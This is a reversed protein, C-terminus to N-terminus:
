SELALFRTFETTSATDFGSTSRRVLLAPINNREAFELSERPAMVMLATSWADADITRDAIVSVAATGHNVPRGSGPDILHCYRDGQHLFFDTYDGSTAVAADGLRLTRLIGGEPHQIGIRWGGGDFGKGRARIEGGIEILYSHIEQRELITSVQDVADGKAIANLDLQTRPDTRRIYGPRLQLQNHQIAGVLHDLAPDPPRAATISRSGFGWRDVLSGIVPNFMGGSQGAIDIAAKVVRETPSSVAFWEPSGLRNFRSLESDHRYGSMCNETQELSLEIQRRLDALRIHRPPMAILARYRTGMTSGQLPAIQAVAARPLVPMLALAGILKMTGRRDM